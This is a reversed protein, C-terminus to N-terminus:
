KTKPNFRYKFTLTVHRQMIREGGETHSTATIDSYFAKQRNLLDHAYLVLEAHNKM